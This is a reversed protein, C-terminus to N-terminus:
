SPSGAAGTWCSHPRAREGHAVAGTGTAPPWRNVASLPAVPCTHPGVAAPSNYQQPSSLALWSPVPSGGSSQSSASHTFRGAWTNAEPTTKVDTLAAPEEVQASSASSTAKQQPSLEDPWIPFPPPMALTGTGTEPSRRKLVM